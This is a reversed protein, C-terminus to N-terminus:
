PLMKLTRSHIERMFNGLSFNGFKEIKAEICVSRNGSDPDPFRKRAEPIIAISEGCLILELLTM